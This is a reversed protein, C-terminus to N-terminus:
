TSILSPRAQSATASLMEAKRKGDPTRRQPFTIAPTRGLCGEGMDPTAVEPLVAACPSRAASQEHRSLTLILSSNHCM